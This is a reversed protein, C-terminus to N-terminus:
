KKQPKQRTGTIEPVLGLILITSVALIWAELTCGLLLLGLEQEHESDAHVLKEIIELRQEASAHTGSFYPFFLSKLLNRISNYNEKPKETLAFRCLIALAAILCNRKM